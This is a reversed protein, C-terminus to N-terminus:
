TGNLVKRLGLRMQGPTVRVWFKLILAEATKDSYIDYLPIYEWKRGLKQQRTNDQWCVGGVARNNVGASFNPAQSLGNALLDM